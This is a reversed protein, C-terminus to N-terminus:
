RRKIFTKRGILALGFLSAGLLLMSAPEPVSLGLDVSSAKFISHDITAVITLSALNDGVASAWAQDSFVGSGFSFSDLLTTQAFAVNNSDLYYDVTITGGSLVAAEMNYSGISSLDFDTETFEITILGTGTNSSDLHIIPYDATGLIPKTVGTSVNVIYTGLEGTWSVAGAVTSNDNSDNDTITIDNVGQTIRVIPIANSTGAVLFVALLTVLLIQLKRM